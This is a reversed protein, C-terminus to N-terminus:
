DIEWNMYANVEDMTPIPMGKARAQCIAAIAQNLELLGQKTQWGRLLFQMEANYFWV